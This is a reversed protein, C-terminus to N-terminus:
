DLTKYYLNFLESQNNKSIQEFKLELKAPKANSFDGATFQATAFMEPFEFLAKNEAEDYNPQSAVFMKLIGTRIQTIKPVSMKQYSTDRGTVRIKIIKGSDAPNFHLSNNAGKEFKFRNKLVVSGITAGMSILEGGTEIKSIQIDQINQANELDSIQASTIIGNTPITFTNSKGGMKGQDSFRKGGSFKRFTELPATKTTVNIELTSVKGSVSSTGGLNDTEKAIVPTSKFDVKDPEIELIPKMGISCIDEDSRYIGVKYMAFVSGIPLNLTLKTSTFVKSLGSETRSIPVKILEEQGTLDQIAPFTPVPKGIIYRMEPVVVTGAPGFTAALSNAMQIDATRQAVTSTALGAGSIFKIPFAIVADDGSNYTNNTGLDFERTITIEQIAATATFIIYQNQQGIAYLAQTTVSQDAGVVNRRVNSSDMTDVVVVPSDKSNSFFELHTCGKLAQLDIPCSINPM